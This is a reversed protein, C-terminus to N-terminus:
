QDNDLLERFSSFRTRFRRTALLKLACDAADVTLLKRKILHLMIGPTTLLRSEGIRGIAIRRFAGREDSALLWDANIRALALCSAEGIGMQSRLAAFDELGDQGELRVLRLLGDTLAADVVSRQEPLRIENHVADPIVFEHDTDRSLVEILEAHVLNILVSADTVVVLAM